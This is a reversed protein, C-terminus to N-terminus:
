DITKELFIKNKFSGRKLVKQKSVKIVEELNSNEMEALCKIIELMDALEEIRDKGSSSLVENYEENLKKELEIKYEEKELIRTIAVEGNSEIIQPIKDRVLKNFVKEM